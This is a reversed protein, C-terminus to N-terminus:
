FVVMTKSRDDLYKRRQGSNELRQKYTYGSAYPELFLTQIFM